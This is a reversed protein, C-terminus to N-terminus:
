LFLQTDKINWSFDLFSTDKLLFHLFRELSYRVSCCHALGVAM